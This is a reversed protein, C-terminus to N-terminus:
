ICIARICLDHMSIHKHTYIIIYIYISVYKCIYEYINIWINILKYIQIDRFFMYAYIYTCIYIYIYIYIYPLTEKNSNNSQLIFYIVFNRLENRATWFLGQTTTVICVRIHIYEYVYIHICIHIHNNIHRCVYVFMYIIQIFVYM